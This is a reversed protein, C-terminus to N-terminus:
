PLCRERRAAVEVTLPVPIVVDGAERLAAAESLHDWTTLGHHVVERLVVDRAMAPDNLLGRAGAPTLHGGLDCHTWYDPGSLRGDSRKRLHGPQWSALREARDARLWSAAHEVDQAFTWTLHEVEVLQRTLAAAAYTNSSALLDLAGGVLSSAARATFALAVMGDDGNGTPSHGEVRDSGLVHGVVHMTDAVQAFALRLSVALARRPEDLADTTDDSTM